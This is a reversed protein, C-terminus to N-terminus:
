FLLKRKLEKWSNVEMHTEITMASFLSNEQAYENWEEVTLEKNKKLKAKLENLSEKLQDM